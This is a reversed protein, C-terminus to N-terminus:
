VYWLYKLKKLLEFVQSVLFSLYPVRCSDRNKSAGTTRISRMRDALKFFWTFIKIIVKIVGGKNPLLILSLLIIHTSDMPISLTM